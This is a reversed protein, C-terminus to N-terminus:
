KDSSFAITRYTNFDLYKSVLDIEGRNEQSLFAEKALIWELQSKVKLAFGRGNVLPFGSFSYNEVPLIDEVKGERIKIAVKDRFVVIDFSVPYNYSEGQLPVTDGLSFTHTTTGKITFDQKKFRYYYEEFVEARARLQGLSFSSGEFASETGTVIGGGVVNYGEVIVFRGTVIHRSFLDMPIPNKTVFQVEAVENFKVLDAGREPSLTTSDMISLIESVRAEVTVTALKIKYKKKKELPEKGMWFISGKFSDSVVPPDALDSIVEGRQNFFESDVIIGISEGKYAVEKQDKPLWTPLSLVKAKKGGPSILITDGVAIKGAEVRGAIIRRDDFKYVDQIPFRLSEETLKKEMGDLAELLTPGQFWSFEPAPSFINKGLLASLPLVPHATIELDWLFAVIENLIAQFKKESNDVLDMKNVVVGVRRIGLLSLMHAHRLSQEEVGRSADIVLFAVEADAAGSIMNKLFETHGPADIILYDRKKTRFQLRTTDITIGQKREEEFADLLFAFEFPQGTEESIARVRDITGQPLSGTDYLLRGIVSSKGHDVHGTVVIKLTERTM